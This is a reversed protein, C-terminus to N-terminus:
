NLDLSSDLTQFIHGHDVTAHKFKLFPVWGSRFNLGLESFTFESDLNTLNTLKSNKMRGGSYDLRHSDTM